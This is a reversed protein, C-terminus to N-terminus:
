EKVDAVLHHRAPKALDSGEPWHQLFIRKNCIAWVDRTTNGNPMTWYIAVTNPGLTKITGTWGVKHKSGKDHIVQELRITDGKVHYEHNWISDVEEGVYVGDKLVTQVSSGADEKLHDIAARIKEAEDGADAVAAELAEALALRSNDLAEKRTAKIAKKAKVFEAVAAKAKASKFELDAGDHAHAITPMVLAVALIALLYRM